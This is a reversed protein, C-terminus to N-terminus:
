RRKKKLRFKKHCSKCTKSLGQYAKEAADSTGASGALRSAHKEMSVALDTFTQWDEWIDAKARSPELNSGDPFVRNLAAGSHEAIARALEKVRAPKYDARGNIMAKIQKMAAGMGKMSDMREKVVGAAGDHALATSSLMALSVMGAVLLARM